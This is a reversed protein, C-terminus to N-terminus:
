FFKVTIGSRRTSCKVDHAFYDSCLSLNGGKIKIQLMNTMYTDDQLIFPPLKQRSDCTLKRNYNEPWIVLAVEAFRNEFISFSLFTKLVDCSLIVVEFAPWPFKQIFDKAVHLPFNQLQINMSGCWAVFRDNTASRLSHALTLNFFIMTCLHWERHLSNQWVKLIM